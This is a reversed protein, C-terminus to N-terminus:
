EPHIDRKACSSQLLIAPWYFRDDINQEGMWQAQIQYARWEQAQECYWHHESQRHHVMEHLLVSVDRRNSASWPATLYITETENNYLGRTRGGSRDAVGHLYEAQEAGIFKIRPQSGRRAYETEADLWANLEALLVNPVQQRDEDVSATATHTLFLTFVFIIGKKM